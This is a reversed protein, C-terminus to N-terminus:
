SDVGSAVVRGERRVAKNKLDGTYPNRKQTSEHVGRVRIRRATGM